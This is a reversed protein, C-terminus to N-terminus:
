NVFWRARIEEPTMAPMELFEYEGLQLTDLKGLWDALNENTIVPFDYKLTNGYVGTLMEPNIEAGNLSYYAVYVSEYAAGGPAITSIGRFRPDLDSIEKWAKLFDERNPCLFFPLQHEVGADKIGWFIRNIDWNSWIAELNKNEQVLQSISQETYNETNIDAPMSTARIGPFKELEADILEQHFRDQGVNYYIMEGEGGMQTFMWELSQHVADSEISLNYIGEIHTEADVIFLPMFVERASWLEPFSGSVDWRNTVYIIASVKQDVLQTVNEGRVCNIQLEGCAKLIQEEKRPNDNSITYGIVMDGNSDPPQAAKPQELQAAPMQAGEVPGCLAPADPNGDQVDNDTLNFFIDPFIEGVLFIEDDEGGKDPVQGSVLEVRQGDLTWFPLFEQITGKGGADMVESGDASVVCNGCAGEPHAWHTFIRGDVTWELDYIEGGTTIQQPNSGDVNMVFISSENGSSKIWAIQQGNPSFKPQGDKEPSNTLNTEASGDTKIMYIDDNHSFAIHSGEPSWDPYASNSMTSLQMVGSGDAKMVFVYRGEGQESGRDSLFAIATGDPSWVPDFDNAGHNTLNTKGSGDPMMVFVERNGDSETDFAIMCPIEIPGQTPTSEVSPAEEIVETTEPLTVPEEVAPAGGCASLALLLALLFIGLIHKNHKM